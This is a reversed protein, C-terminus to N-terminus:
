RKRQQCKLVTTKDELLVQSYGKWLGAFGAQELMGLIISMLSRFDYTREEQCGQVIAERWELLDGTLIVLYNKRAPKAYVRLMSYISLDNLVEGDVVVLFAFFYHHLAVHGSLSDVPNNELSLTAAYASPSEIDIKNNDLGRTPSYGLTKQCVEVLTKFDVKPIALPYVEM